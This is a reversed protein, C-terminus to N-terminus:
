PRERWPPRVRSRVTSIHNEEVEERELRDDRGSVYSHYVHSWAAAHKLIGLISRSGGEPAFLAEDLTLRTLHGNALQYAHDLLHRSLAVRSRM